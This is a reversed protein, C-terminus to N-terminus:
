VAVLLCERGPGFEAEQEQMACSSLISNENVSSEVAQERPAIQGLDHGVDSADEQRVTAPAGWRLRSLPSELIRRQMAARAAEAQRSGLEQEAHLREAKAAARRVVKRFRSSEQLAQFEAAQQLRLKGLEFRDRAEACRQALKREALALRKEAAVLAFHTNVFSLRNQCTDIPLNVALDLKECLKLKRQFLRDAEDLCVGQQMDLMGRVAVPGAYVALRLKAALEPDGAKTERNIVQRALWLVEKRQNRVDYFLQEWARLADVAVGSRQHMEERPLDVVTMLKLAAIQEPDANLKEAAAFWPYRSEAQAGGGARRQLRLYRVLDRLVDDGWDTWRLSSQRALKEALVSRWAPGAVARQSRAFEQPNLSM